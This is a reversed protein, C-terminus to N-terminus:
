LNVSYVDHLLVMLLTCHNNTEAREEAMLLGPLM